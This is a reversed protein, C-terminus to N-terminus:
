MDFLNFGGNSEKIDGCVITGKKIEWGEKEIHKIMVDITKMSVKDSKSKSMNGCASCRMNINKKKKSILNLEPILEPISCNPCMVFSNIYHFIEDQIDCNSYHGKISNNDLYCSTGKKFGIFKLIINSPHGLSMSIEDLNSLLTHCNKGSGTQNIELKPMRYRYSSDFNDGNINLSM